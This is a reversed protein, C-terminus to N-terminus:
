NYQKFSIAKRIGIFILIAKIIYEQNQYHIELIEKM